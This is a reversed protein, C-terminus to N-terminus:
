LIKYGFRKMIEHNLKNRCKELDSKRNKLLDNIYLEDRFYEKRNFNDQSEDTQTTLRKKPMVFVSKQSELKFEKQVIKLEKQVDKLINEHKIFLVDEPHEKEFNTWATYLDTWYKMENPFVYHRWHKCFSLHWGYPNKINILFKIEKNEIAKSVIDVIQKSRHNRRPPQIEKSVFAFPPNQGGKHISTEELFNSLKDQIQKEKKEKNSGYLLKTFYDHPEQHKHYALVITNKFNEKLLWQLLNTGSRFAGVLYIVNYM